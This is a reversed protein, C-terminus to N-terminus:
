LAFGVQPYYIPEQRKVLWNDLAKRVGANLPVERYAERKGQRVIVTGKRASILVDSQDLAACESVRLGTYFLLIAVAQDRISPCREVARLFRKQEVETLATGKLFEDRALRSSSILALDAEIVFEALIM